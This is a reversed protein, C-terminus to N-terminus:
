LIYPHHGFISSSYAGTRKGEQPFVDVYGEELAQKEVDKFYSPFHEISDFFIQKGQNYTYSSKDKGIPIFRDYTHYEDLKLIKKRLAIHRKLPATNTSAVEILSHFLKTPIQNPELFSDLISKYGMAIRRNNYQELEARYISAFTNKHLRFKAYQASFIKARDEPNTSDAILTSYNTAKVEVESGDQLTVKVNQHDATYLSTYIDKISSTVGGFISLIKEEKATLVHKQSDFLQIMSQKYQKLYEDKELFSFITKKGIKILEPYVFSFLQEMKDLLSWVYQITQRKNQDKLNLDSDLHAYLYLTYAKTMLDEELKFLQLFTSYDSLKGQYQTIDVQNLQAEWNKLSEDFLEKTSFIPNLNWKDQAMIFEKIPCNRGM